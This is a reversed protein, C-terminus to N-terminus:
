LKNDQPRNRQSTNEESKGRKYAALKGFKMKLTISYDLIHFM